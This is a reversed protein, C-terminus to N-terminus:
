EMGEVLTNASSIIETAPLRQLLMRNIHSRLLQQHRFNLAAAAPVHGVIDEVENPWVIEKELWAAHPLDTEGDLGYAQARHQEILERMHGQLESEYEPSLDPSDKLHQPLGPLTTFIINYLQAIKANAERLALVLAPPAAYLSQVDQIPTIVM